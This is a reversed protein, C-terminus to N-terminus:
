QGEKKKGYKKSNVIIIDLFERYRELRGDSIGCEGIACGLEGTHRCDQFRCKGAIRLLEPYGGALDGEELGIRDVDLSSFGPTDILFGGEFPFLEVHRTTHKGRKLRESISGVEIQDMGTLRHCLTSKGVGSQGAIGVTHGSFIEHIKDDPLMQDHSSEVVHFGADTYEKILSDAKQRSLDTKTLWILPEIDLKPCLILLKDLLKLDPEPDSTSVAIILVDINAVSPRVLLNKREGISVIVFPIDPDGSPEVECYDGVTPIVKKNRFIGRPKALVSAGEDLLITYEGGVGKMIRGKKRSDEM